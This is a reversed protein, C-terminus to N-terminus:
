VRSMGVLYTSGPYKLLCVKLKMRLGDNSMKTYFWDFNLYGLVTAAMKSFNSQCSKKPSLIVQCFPLHFQLSKLSPSFPTKKHRNKNSYFSIPNKQLKMRWNLLM